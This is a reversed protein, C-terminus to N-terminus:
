PRCPLPSPIPHCCSRLTERQRQGAGEQVEDRSGGLQSADERWGATVGASREPHRDDALYPEEKSSRGHVGRCVYVCLYM